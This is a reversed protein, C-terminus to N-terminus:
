LYEDFHRLHDRYRDLTKQKSIQAHNVALAEEIAQPNTGSMDRLESEDLALGPAESLHVPRTAATRSTALDSRPRESATAARIPALAVDRCGTTQSFPSSPQTRWQRPRAGNSTYLFQADM